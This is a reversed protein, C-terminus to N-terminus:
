PTSWKVQTPKTIDSLSIGTNNAYGREWAGGRMENSATHFPLSLRTDKRLHAHRLQCIAFFNFL